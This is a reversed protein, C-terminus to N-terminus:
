LLHSEGIRTAMEGLVAMIRSRREDRFRYEPLFCGLAAITQRGQRVPFAILATDRAIELLMPQDQIQRLEKLFTERCDIEPWLEGPLGFRDFFREQWLPPMGALLVRGSVTQCLNEEEPYLRNSVQVMHTGLELCVIRCKTGLLTSVCVYEGFQERFARLLPTAVRRLLNSDCYFHSLEVTKRGLLYGSKRGAFELYGLHNMTRVIRSVTPVKLGTKQSLESIAHPMNPSKAIEELILFARELVQISDPEM